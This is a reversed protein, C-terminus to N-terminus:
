LVIRAIKEESPNWAMFDYGGDGNEQYDFELNLAHSAEIFEELEGDCYSVYEDGMADLISKAAYSQQLELLVSQHQWTGCRACTYGWDYKLIKRHNTQSACNRCYLIKSNGM